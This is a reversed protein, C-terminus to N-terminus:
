LKEGYKELSASKAKAKKAGSRELILVIEGDDPDTGTYNNVMETHRKEVFQMNAGGIIQM